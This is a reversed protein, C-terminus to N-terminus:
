CQHSQENTSRRNSTYRNVFQVYIFMGVACFIIIIFVNFIVYWFYLKSQYTGMHMVTMLM